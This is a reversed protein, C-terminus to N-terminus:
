SAAGMDLKVLYRLAQEKLHRWGALREEFVMLYTEIERLLYKVGLRKAEEHTDAEFRGDELCEYGDTTYGEVYTVWCPSGDGRVDREVSVRYGYVELEVNPETKEDPPTSTERWNNEFYDEM